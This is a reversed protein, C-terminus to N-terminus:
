YYGLLIGITDGITVWYYGLLLGITDWYYGWYYGLLIGITDGITVWYYGLLIGLLLGITDWYYGWYYGLLIGINGLERRPSCNGAGYQHIADIAADACPGTTEAFGLYNYSGLNLCRTSDGTLRCVHVFSRM